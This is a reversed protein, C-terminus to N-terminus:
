AYSPPPAAISNMNGNPSACTGAMIQVPTYKLHLNMLSDPMLYGTRDQSFSSLSSIAFLIVLVKKM